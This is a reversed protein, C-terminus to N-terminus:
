CAVQSIAGRLSEAVVLVEVAEVTSRALEAEAAATQVLGVQGERRVGSGPGGPWTSRPLM